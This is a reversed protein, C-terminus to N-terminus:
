DKRIISEFLFDIFKWLGPQTNEGVPKPSNGIKYFAIMQCSKHMCNVCYEEGRNTASWCSRCLRFYKIIGGRNTNEGVPKPSNGVKYFAIM